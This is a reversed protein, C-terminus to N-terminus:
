NPEEEPEMRRYYQIFDYGKEGGRVFNQEVTTVQAETDLGGLGSVMVNGSADTGVVTASHVIDGGEQRYIAVDGAQPAGSMPNGGYEDKLITEVQTNGIVFLGDGFTLGHCNTAMPNSRNPQRALLPGLIGGANLSHIDGARHNDADMGGQLVTSADIKNGGETELTGTKAFYVRDPRSEHGLGKVFGSRFDLKGNKKRKLFGNPDDFAIPNDDVYTYRNWSLVTAPNGVVRDVSLFRGLSAGYYRALMYDLGLGEDREHGTFKM